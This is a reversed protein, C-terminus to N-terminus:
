IPEALEVAFATTLKAFDMMHDSSLLDMTDKATHSFPNEKGVATEFPSVAPIGRLFWPAHDSCDDGCTTYKVPQKVYTNALLELYANLNPDVYDDLLWITPDKKHEYGTMDIQIVANIPIKKKIFDAVVHESGVDGPEEAAYWIFYIPNKFNLNSAFLIRAVELVTVIGTGDDDAGPKKEKKGSLTDMHAGIVIGPADSFGFKVVVSPQRYKKGTKILSISVDHRNYQKAMLEVQYKIWKATNVGNDSNAFRDHFSTLITLNYLMKKMDLQKMLENVKNQYKIHYASHRISHYNNKSYTNLLTIASINNNWEDTVDIFGGCHAAHYQHKLKILQDLENENIKILSLTPTYALTKFNKGLHQILCEPAIVIYKGNAYTPSTLILTFTLIFSHIFFKKIGTFM